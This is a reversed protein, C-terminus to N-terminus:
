LLKELDLVTTQKCLLDSKWPTFIMQYICFHVPKEYFFIPLKYDIVSFNNYFIFKNDQKNKKKETRM